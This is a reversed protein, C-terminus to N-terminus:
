PLRMVRECDRAVRDRRDAYVVDSGRGCSVRDRGGGNVRVVDNLPSGRVVDPRNTGHCALVPIDDRAHVVRLGVLVSRHELAYVVWSGDPSADFFHANYGPPLHTVASKTGTDPDFRWISTNVLAAEALSFFIGDARWALPPAAAETYVPQGAFPTVIGIAVGLFALRTSDPSWAIDHIPTDATAILRPAGGDPSIGRLEDGVAYAIELGDPSWTPHDGEALYRIEGTSIDLTHLHGDRAFVLRRGDPSWDGLETTTGFEVHVLERGLTFRGLSLVEIAGTRKLFAIDGRSSWVLKLPASDFSLWGQAPANTGPKAIEIAASEQAPVTYALEDDPSWSPAAGAAPTAAPCRLLALAALLEVGVM